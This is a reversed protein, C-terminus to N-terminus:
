AHGPEAAVPQGGNAEDPRAVKEDEKAAAPEALCTALVRRMIALQNPETVRFRGRVKGRRDIVVARNSHTQREVPLQMMEHGIREVYDLAGRCFLWRHPDAGFRHAYDSLAALTDNEPDCSISVFTVERLAPDDHLSQLAQNLRVCTGACSTFFFSAVWVHGDLQRSDFPKGGREELTFQRLRSGPASKATATPTAATDVVSLSGFTEGQNRWAAVLGALAAVVVILALIYPLKTM